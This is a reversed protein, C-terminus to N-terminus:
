LRAGELHHAHQQGHAPLEIDMGARVEGRDIASVRRAADHDRSGARVFAGADEDNGRVCAHGRVARREQLLLFADHAVEFPNEVAGDSRIEAVLVSLPVPMKTMGAFALMDEFLGANRCCFSPMMRLKLPTKLQVM